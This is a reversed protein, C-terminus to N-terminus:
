GEKNRNILRRLMGKGYEVLSTIEIDQLLVGRVVLKSYGRTDSFLLPLVFNTLMQTVFTAFAAGEIGFSPILLYNLLLNAFAGLGSFVLVYKNRKECVLWLNMASGLYSFLTYWVAIRLCASAALYAEGYLIRIILKSFVTIFASYIGSFWLIAAALQCFRLQYLRDDSNKAEMVVPRSSDLIAVPIFGVITCISLSASYLGVQASDGLMQKIMIRDMQGYIVAMLNALVFPFGSRLLRKARELSFHLKPGDHRKYLYLCSVGIIIVDLSVALAFWAVSKQTLLLYVKYISTFIYAGTQVLVPYKSDLSSQYWFKISDLCLFPLQIAQLLAVTMTVSDTGDTLYIIALFSITCVIGAVLRLAIATGLIEGNKERNSVLEYILVGELGLTILSTFFSVYSTVYTIVGYNSPGLYRTSIINILSSVIMRVIQGALIWSTNNVFKGSKMTCKEETDNKHTM